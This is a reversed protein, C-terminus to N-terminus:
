NMPCAVVNIFQFRSYLRKEVCAWVGTDDANVRFGSLFDVLDFQRAIQRDIEGCDGLIRGAIQPVSEVMSDIGAGYLKTDGGGFLGSEGEGIIGDMKFTFQFAPFEGIDWRFDM